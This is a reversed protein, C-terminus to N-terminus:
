LLLHGRLSRLGKGLHPGCSGDETAQPASPGSSQRLTWPRRSDVGDAGGQLEMALTRPRLPLIDGPPLACSLGRREALPASLPRAPSGPPPSSRPQHHLGAAPSAVDSKNTKPSIAPKVKKFLFKERPRHLKPHQECAHAKPLGSLSWTPSPRPVRLTVSFPRPSLM